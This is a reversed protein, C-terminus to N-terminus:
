KVEEAETPAEKKDKGVSRFKIGNIMESLGYVISTVGLIVFPIGATEIPNFLIVIGAVLVLVPIIYFGWAVHTLKHWQALNVIQNVGALILFAGLIYMLSTVFLAPSVLLLIGFLLSGMGVVPFFPRAEDATPKFRLWTILAVLGPILFLLGIVMVLAMTMKDPYMVLLAGILIACCARFSSSHIFKM